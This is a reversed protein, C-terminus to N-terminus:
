LSTPRRAPSAPLSPDRAPAEHSSRLGSLFAVLATVEPPSLQKGYAPMNGGGQLVQRILQREDLRAAVDGLDPGREGGSGDLAHCNRCQKAQFVAAGQLELPTRGEILTVPVPLGSWADMRPSWPSRIGLWATTVLTTMALVVAVIAGPRRSWHKEGQPAIFPVLAFLLFGLPLVGLIVFTEIWAPLLAFSAFLPLFYFDPRPATDILTPDAPGNPLKPGLLAACGAIALLVCASFLVDKAAGEPFFRIGERRLLEEYQADYRARVVPRGPVPYDSIGRKLVLRLHLFLVSAVLGPILFVHLAFFRTLATGGIIPGGLLFEVLDGGIFPVRGTVSVGIGLGWYADQDFRLVQGSFAAGLTGAFLVCGMVWTLERPYKYAGFLFVQIVHLTMLAIMFNSGWYHVGRLFWGLTLRYDLYELSQYAQDPSPVYVLALCIGTAIQLLFCVLTASGFVYWWSASSSPITHGASARYLAGLELRRELWAGIRGALGPDSV